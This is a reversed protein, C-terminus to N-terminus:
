CSGSQGLPPQMQDLLHLISEPRISERAEGRKHHSDSGIKATSRHSIHEDNILLSHLCEVIRVQLHHQEM